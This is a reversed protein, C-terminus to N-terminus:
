FKITFELRVFTAPDQNTAAYFDGPLFYEGIFMADVYKNFKHKYYIQPLQGRTKGNGFIGTNFSENAMMYFYNLTLNDKPTLVFNASGRIAQLNTWYGVEGAGPEAAFSFIYLESLWPWRSFLPDWGENKGTTPDDGSLYVYGCTLTPTTKTKKFTYDMFLYGGNGERDAGNKYDGFQHAFEGHLKWPSANWVVRGGLTNLALNGPTNAIPDEIKYMYYPEIAWQENLKNKSYLVLGQENTTNLKRQLDNIVPLFKDHVPDNIYVFDLTNNKNFKWSAKAANFYYSRSGDWPTGDMILFGEGYTMLFDQRGVRIDLPLGFANKYDFYLSDFFGENDGYYNWKGINGSELYIDPETTLKAYLSMDKTFKYQGWISAKIRYYNDNGRDPPFAHFNRFFIENAIYEQRLRLYFGYDFKDDKKQVTQQEASGAWSAAMGLVLCLLVMIRKM